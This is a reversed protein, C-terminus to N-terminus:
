QYMMDDYQDNKRKPKLKAARDKTKIHKLPRRQSEHHGIFRFDRRLLRIFTTDPLIDLSVIGRSVFGKLARELSSRSIGLEERLNDMTIPYKKLLIKLIREDLSGKKIEIM